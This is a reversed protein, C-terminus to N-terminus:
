AAGLVGAATTRLIPEASAPAQGGPVAAPRFVPSTGAPRTTGFLEERARDHQDSPEPPSFLEPHARVIDHDAAIRSVGARLVVKEGGYVVEADQKAVMM